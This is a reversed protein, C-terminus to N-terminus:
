YRALFTSGSWVDCVAPRILIKFQRCFYKLGINVYLTVITYSQRQHPESFELVNDLYTIYNITIFCNIRGGWALTDILIWTLGSVKGCM